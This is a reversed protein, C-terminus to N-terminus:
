RSRRRAVARSAPHRTARYVLYGGIGAVLVGAAALAVTTGTSSAAPATPSPNPATGKPPVPPAVQFPPNPPLKVPPGPIPPAPAGSAGPVNIIFPDFWPPQSWGAGEVVAAPQATVTIAGATGDLVITVGSQDCTGGAGKLCSSVSSVGGTHSETEAGISDQMAVFITSGAPAPSAAVTAGPM